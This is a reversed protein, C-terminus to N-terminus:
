AALKQSRAAKKSESELYDNVHQLHAAMVDHVIRTIGEHRGLREYLSLQIQEM